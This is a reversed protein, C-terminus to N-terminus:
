KIKPEGAGLGAAHHGAEHAAAASSGYQAGM